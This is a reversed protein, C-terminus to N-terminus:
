LNMIEISKIMKYGFTNVVTSNWYIEIGLEEANKVIKSSSKKRIDVIKVSIGKEFLSVATEYASDNNTFLSVNEGTKVGYYDIYKKISSSLIIGPRDNNSFILPREISGSAIIVKKARIKWLRQRIKNKRDSISLHDTLNERALLYNYGHFAALSTRNKIILNPYNKLSKIEKALWENSHIDNIKYAENEQYITSGGLFNKDDILFTDLGKEASLKASIIGSIGGGVIIIDYTTTFFPM